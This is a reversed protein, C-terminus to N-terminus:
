KRRSDLITEGDIDNKKDGGEEVSQHHPINPVKSPPFDHNEGNGEPENFSAEEECIEELYGVTSPDRDDKSDDPCQDEEAPIKAAPEQGVVEFLDRGDPFGAGQFGDLAEIIYFRDLVRVIGMPFVIIRVFCFWFWFWDIISVLVFFIIHHLEMVM